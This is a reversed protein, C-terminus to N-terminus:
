LTLNNVGNKGLIFHVAELTGFLLQIKQMLSAKTTMFISWLASTSYKEKQMDYTTIISKQKCEPCMDYEFYGFLFNCEHGGPRWFLDIWIKETLMMQENWSFLWIGGKKREHRKNKCSKENNM